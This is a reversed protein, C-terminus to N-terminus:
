TLFTDIWQYGLNAHILAIDTDEATEYVWQHEAPERWFTTQRPKGNPMKTRFQGLAAMTKLGLKKPRFFLFAGGKGANTEWINESTFTDVGDKENATNKISKGILVEDIQLLRAILEETRVDQQTYKIKEGITDEEKINEFTLYDMVLVNPIAGTKGQVTTKANRIDALFTNSAGPAWLGGVDEGAANGDSWTTDKILQSTRVEKKLDIKETAYEIADSILNIPPTNFDGEALKDEDTIEKAFAFQLPDINVSGLVFGGRVARTGPARVSAEDRFWDGVNYKTLKAIKSVNDVMLTVRDAIHDTNKFRISADQLFGRVTLEQVRPSTSM